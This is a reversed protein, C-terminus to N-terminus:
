CLDELEKWYTTAVGCYGCHKQKPNSIVMNYAKCNRNSCRNTSPKPKSMGCEICYDHKSDNETNCGICHWM